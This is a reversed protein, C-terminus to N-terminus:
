GGKVEALADKVMKKMESNSSIYSKVIEVSQPYTQMLRVLLNFGSDRKPAQIQRDEYYIAHYSLFNDLLVMTRKLDIAAMSLFACEFLGTKTYRMIKDFGEKSAIRSLATMWLMSQRDSMCRSGHGLLKQEYRRDPVACALGLANCCPYDLNDLVRKAICERYQEFEPHKIIGDIASNDAEFGEGLLIEVANILSM